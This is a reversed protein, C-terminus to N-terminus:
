TDPTAINARNSLERSAIIALTYENILVSQYQSHALISVLGIAM